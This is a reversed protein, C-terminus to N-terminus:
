GNQGVDEGIIIEMADAPLRRVNYIYMPASIKQTLLYDQDSVSVRIEVSDEASFAKEEPNEPSSMSVTYVFYKSATGASKLVDYEEGALFGESPLVVIQDEAKLALWSIGSRHLRRLLDGRFIWQYVEPAEEAKERPNTGEAAKAGQTGAAKKEAGSEEDGPLSLLTDTELGELLLTNLDTDESLDEPPDWSLLAPLFWAAEGNKLLRLAEEEGSLTLVSMPTSIGDSLDTLSLQDYGHDTQYKEKAHVIRVTTTGSKQSQNKRAAEVWVLYDIIEEPDETVVTGAPLDAKVKVDGGAYKPLATKDIQFDLYLIDNRRIELLPLEGEQCIYVTLVPNDEETLPWVLFRACLASLDGAHLTGDPYVCWAEEQYIEAWIEEDSAEELSGYDAEYVLNEQEDFWAAAWTDPEGYGVTGDTFADEGISELSAPLYIRRITSGAFARDGISLLGEPLIVEDYASLDCFAEDGISTVEASIVLTDAAATGCLLALAAFLVIFLRRMSVERIVTGM